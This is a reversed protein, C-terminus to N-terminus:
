LKTTEKRHQINEKFAEMLDDGTLGQELLAQLLVEPQHLPRSTLLRGELLISISEDLETITKVIASIQAPANSPKSITVFVRLDQNAEEHKKFFPLHEKSILAEILWSNEGDEKNIVLGDLLPINKAEAAQEDIKLEVLKFTKM